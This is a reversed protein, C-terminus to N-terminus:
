QQVGQNDTDIILRKNQQNVEYMIGFIINYAGNPFAKMENGQNIKKDISYASGTHEVAITFRYM